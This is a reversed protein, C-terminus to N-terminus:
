KSWIHLVGNSSNLDVQLLTVDELKILGEDGKCKKDKVGKETEKECIKKSDIEKIKKIETASVFVIGSILIIGITIILLKNM